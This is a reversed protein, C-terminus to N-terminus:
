LKCDQIGDLLFTKTKIFSLREVRCSGPRRGTNFNFINLINLYSRFVIINELVCMMNELQSPDEKICMTMSVTTTNQTYKKSTENMNESYFM